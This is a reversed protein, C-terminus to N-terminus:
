KKKTRSSGGIKKRKETKKKREEKVIVIEEIGEQITPGKIRIEKKVEVKTVKGDVIQWPLDEGPKTDGGDRMNMIDLKKM